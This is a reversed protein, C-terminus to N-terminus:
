MGRATRTSRNHTLTTNEKEYGYLRNIRIYPFDSSFIKKM